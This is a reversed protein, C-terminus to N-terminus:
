PPGGQSGLELSLKGKGCEVKAGRFDLRYELWLSSESGQIEVLEGGGCCRFGRQSSGWGGLDGPGLAFGEAPGSSGSGGEERKSLEGQM